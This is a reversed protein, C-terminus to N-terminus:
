DYILGLVCLVIDALLFLHSYIKIAMILFAPVNSLVNIM